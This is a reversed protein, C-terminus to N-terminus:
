GESLVVSGWKLFADIYHKYGIHEHEGVIVDVVSGEQYRSVFVEGVRYLFDFLYSFGDFYCSEM